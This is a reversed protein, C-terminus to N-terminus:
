RMNEIFEELMELLIPHGSAKIVRVANGFFDKVEDEVTLELGEKRYEEFMKLVLSNIEGKKVGSETRVDVNVMIERTEPEFSEILLRWGGPIPPLKEASIMYAKAFGAYRGLQKYLKAKQIPYDREKGIKVMEAAIENNHIVSPLATEFLIRSEMAKVEALTIHSATYM